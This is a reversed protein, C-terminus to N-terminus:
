SRLLELVAREPESGASLVRGQGYLEFVRHNIYSARCVAPTNGLEAAVERVAAVEASRRARASRDRDPAREALAVAALVTAHWTRFDKASVEMGFIERLYGNLEEGRVDHRTNGARYALLRDTGGRGRRLTRV